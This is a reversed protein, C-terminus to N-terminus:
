SIQGRVCIGFVCNGWVCLCFGLGGACGFMHVCAYTFKGVCVYMFTEGRVYMYKEGYLIGGMCVCVCMSVYVCLCVYRCTIDGWAWLCFKNKVCVYMCCVAVRQLVSYISCCTILCQLM